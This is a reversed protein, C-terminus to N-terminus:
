GFRMQNFRSQNLWFKQISFKVFKEEYAELRSNLSLIFLKLNISVKVSELFCILSIRTDLIINNSQEPLSILRLCFINKNIFKKLASWSVEQCNLSNNKM